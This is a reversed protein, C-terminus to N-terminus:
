YTLLGKQIASKNKAVKSHLAHQDSYSLTKLRNLIRDKVKDKINQVNKQKQVYAQMEFLLHSIKVPGSGKHDLVFNYLAPDLSASKKNIRMMINEVLFDATENNYSSNINLMEEQTQHSPGHNWDIPRISLYLEAKKPDEDMLQHWRHVTNFSEGVLDLKTAYTPSLFKVTIDPTSPCFGVVAGGNNIVAQASQYDYIDVVDVKYTYEMNGDQDPTDLVRKIPGHFPVMTPISADSYYSLLHVLKPKELQGEIDTLQNSPDILIFVHCFGDTCLDEWTKPPVIIGKCIEDNQNKILYEKESYPIDSIASKIAQIFTVNSGPIQSKKDAINVQKRTCIMPKGGYRYFSVITGERFKTYVLGTPLEEAEVVETPAWQFSRAVINDNDDIVVGRYFSADSPHTADETYNLISLNGETKTVKINQQARMKNYM